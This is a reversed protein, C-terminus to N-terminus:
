ADTFAIETGNAAAGPGGVKQGAHRRGGAPNSIMFQFCGGDEIFIAVAANGPVPLTTSNEM